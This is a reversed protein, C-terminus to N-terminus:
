FLYGAHVSQMACPVRNLAIHYGPNLPTQPLIAVHVHTASDRQQGGSVIVVNNILEVQIYFLFNLFLFM